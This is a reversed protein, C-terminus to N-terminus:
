VCYYYNVLHSTLQHFVFFSKTKKCVFVWEGVSTVRRSNNILHITYIHKDHYPCMARYHYGAVMQHNRIIKDRSTFNIQSKAELKISRGVIITGDTHGDYCIFNSRSSKHISTLRDAFHSLVYVVLSGFM